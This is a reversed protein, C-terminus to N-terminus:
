GGIVATLNSGREGRGRLIRTLTDYKGKELVFKGTLGRSGRGWFKRQDEMSHTDIPLKLM